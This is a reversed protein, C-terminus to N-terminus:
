LGGFIRSTAVGAVIGGGIGNARDVAAAVGKAWTQSILQTGSANPHVNNDDTTLQPNAGVYDYVDTSGLFVNVNDVLSDVTARYARLLTNATDLNAPTETPGGQGSNHSFSPYPFIIKWGSSILASFISSCHSGFTSPSNLLDTSADNFGHEFHVFKQAGPPMAAYATAGAALANALNTSGPLWDDTKSGGAGQNVATVTRFGHLNTLYTQIWTPPASGGPPTRYTWSTGICLLCLPPRDATVGSVPSSTVSASASDTVVCWYWYVEGSVATADTLTAGAQGTLLTAGGSPGTYRKTKDRYWAYTYPATGGSATATVVISGQRTAQTTLTCAPTGSSTTVTLNDLSADTNTAGTGNYGFVGCYGNPQLAAPITFSACTTWPGTASATSYYTTATNANRNFRLWVKSGPSVTLSTTNIPTQNIGALWYNTQVTRGSPSYRVEIWQTDLVNQRQAILGLDGSETTGDVFVEAVVDYTSSTVVLNASYISLHGATGGNRLRVTGSDNFFQFNGDFVSFVAGAWTNGTTDTFTSLDSGVTGGAFNANIILSM